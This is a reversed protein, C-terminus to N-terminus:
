KKVVKKTGFNGNEDEIKIFYLGQSVSSIDIQNENTNSLVLQGLPNYIEIQTINTNSKITLVGTTPVPYVLFDKLTNENVGLVVLNEYWAIKDDEWSASLVDMDGDNDIDISYVSIAGVLNETIIQEVGFSGQGNTNEFWVIKDYLYNGIAILVDMDGDRDIDTATVSNGGLQNAIILQPGFNGQGDLNEYWAIKLGSSSLVDMDGDGDIDASYVTNAESANTTIILQPGFNGQGDLNEYWAIKGDNYSASLVDMDGDGDLDASYVSSGNEVATSIILQPGFNGQGDTNEYWAIKNESIGSASLVDMDGDGDLDASYVDQPYIVNTTIILQPGFNGQGDLNEYWAIKNDNGSASLVDMDGDGDIDEAYVDEARIVNIAIIRQPGFNGQGDLNEYWAIKEDDSSASLVDMDGDGDLDASYVDQARDANITITHDQFNIQAYTNLYLIGTLLLLIKTKM